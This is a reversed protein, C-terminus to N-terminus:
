TEGTAQAATEDKPSSALDVLAALIVLAGGFLALTGLNTGIILGASLTAFIIESMTLLAATPASVFRAGWVQALMSPWLVLIGFAIAVFIVTGIAQNSPLASAGDVGLFYLLSGIAIAIPTGVVFPAAANAFPDLDPNGRILTLSLGWFFGSALGFADGLNKPVPLGGEGGLLLWLGALALGISLLQIPRVREGYLVRATITAWVPLLYFLFIVRIVDSFIMAAFYLVMSLGIGLGVVLTSRSMKLPGSGWIRIAPLAVLCACACILAVAWLGTVGNTDLWRLPIWFMGWLSSGAIIALSARTRQNAFNM